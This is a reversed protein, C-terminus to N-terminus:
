WENTTIHNWKLPLHNDVSIIRAETSQTDKELSIDAQPTFIMIFLAMITIAIFTFFIGRKKMGTKVAGM